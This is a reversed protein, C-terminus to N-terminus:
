PPRGAGRLLESAGCAGDVLPSSTGGAVGGDVLPPSTRGLDGDVFEKGTTLRLRRNSIGTIRSMWRDTTIRGFRELHDDSLRQRSLTLLDVTVVTV